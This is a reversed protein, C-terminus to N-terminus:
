SGNVRRSAVVDGISFELRVVFQVGAKTRKPRVTRRFDPDIAAAAIRGRVCDRRHARNPKLGRKVDARPRCPAGIWRAGHCRTGFGSLAPLTANRRVDAPTLLSGISPPKDARHVARDSAVGEDRWHWETTGAVLRGQWCESFECSHLCT